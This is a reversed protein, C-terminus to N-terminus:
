DGGQGSHRTAAAVSGPSAIDHRYRWGEGKLDAITAYVQDRAAERTSATAMLHLARGGSVRWERGDWHTGAHFVTVEHREAAAGREGVGGGEDGRDPYGGAVLAGAGAAGDARRVASAELEGRAASRLLRAFSGELLPLVVQAEPDGFRANIELVKPGQAT